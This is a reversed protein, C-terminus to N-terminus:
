GKVSGLVLGQTFYKQLFPYAMLIPVAGIFIQATRFTKPSIQNMKRVEDPTIFKTVDTVILYQLYTQLPQQETRMYLMGDFWSNWQDVLAFLTITAIVPKSIPAFINWLIRWHGAGDIYAAEELEKPLQRFFNLMLIIYWASVAGPIVLAWISYMLGTYYIVLYTPILGGGFLMTFFIVWVFYKRGPFRKSDKSLPYATLITLFLTIGGGLVVRKVSVWMANWFQKDKLVFEYSKTTFEVPWFSVKGSVVSSPSSLSIALVNIMPLLCALAAFILIIYNFVQFVTYGTIQKKIKVTEM